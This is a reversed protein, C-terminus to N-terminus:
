FSASSLAQSTSQLTHGRVSCGLGFSCVFSAATRMLCVTSLTRVVSGALSNRATRGRPTKAASRCLVVGCFHAPTPCIRSRFARKRDRKRLTARQHLQVVRLRRYRAHLLEHNFAFIMANSCWCSGSGQLAFSHQCGEEM